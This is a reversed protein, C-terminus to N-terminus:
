VVCRSRANVIRFRGGGGRSLLMFIPYRKM